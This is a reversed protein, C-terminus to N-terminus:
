GTLSLAIHFNYTVAGGELAMDEFDKKLSSGTTFFMKCLKLWFGQFYAPTVFWPTKYMRQKIRAGM